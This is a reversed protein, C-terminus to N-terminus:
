GVVGECCDNVFNHQKKIFVYVILILKKEICQLGIRQKPRRIKNLPTPNLTSMSSLHIYERM